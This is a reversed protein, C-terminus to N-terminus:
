EDVIRGFVNVVERVGGRCEPCRWNMQNLRPKASCVGCLCMHGCPILVHSVDKEMCVFCLKTKSSLGSNNNTNDANRSSSTNRDSDNNYTTDRIKTITDKTTEIAHTINDLHLGMRKGFEAYSDEEDMTERREDTLHIMDEATTATDTVVYMEVFSEAHILLNFISEKAPHTNDMVSDKPLLGHWDSKHVSEPYVLLLSRIVPIARHGGYLCALHLPLSGDDAAVHASKPYVSILINVIKVDAEYRVASHLPLRGLGDKQKMAEPDAAVLALILDLPPKRM